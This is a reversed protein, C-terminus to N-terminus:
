KAAAASRQITSPGTSTNITRVIEGELCAPQHVRPALAALEWLRLGVRYYGAEDRELAGWEVLQNVMRHATSLPVGAHRSLETLTMAPHQATFAGLLHLVRSM